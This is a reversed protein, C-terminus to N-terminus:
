QLNPGEAHKAQEEGELKLVMGKMRDSTEFGLWHWSSTILITTRNPKPRPRSLPM